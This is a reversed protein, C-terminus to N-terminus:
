DSYESYIDFYQVVYLSMAYGQSVRFVGAILILRATNNFLISRFGRKYQNLLTFKESSRDSIQNIQLGELTESVQFGGSDSPEIDAVVSASIDFRGREPETICLLGTIGSLLGFTATVQFTGRWGFLGIIPRNLSALPYGM